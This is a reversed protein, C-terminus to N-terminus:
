RGRSTSLRGAQARAHDENAEVVAEIVIQRIGERDGVVDGNFNVNYTVQGSGASPISAGGSVKSSAGPATTQMFAQIPRFGSPLNRSLGRMARETEETTFGLQELITNFAGAESEIEEILDRVPALDQEIISGTDLFEQVLDMVMGEFVDMREVQSEGTLWGRILAARITEEMNDGIATVDAAALGSEVARQITQSDIGLFRPIGTEMQALERKIREIESTTDSSAREANRLEQELRDVMAIAEKLPRSGWNPFLRKERATVQQQWYTLSSGLEDIVSDLRHAQQEAAVLESEAKAIAEQTELIGSESPDVAKFESAFADFERPPGVDVPQSAFLQGLAMGAIQMLGPLAAQGITQLLGAGSSRNILGQGIDMIFRDLVSSGSNLGQVFGSLAENAAQQKRLRKEEDAVLADLDKQYDRMTKTVGDLVSEPNEFAEALRDFESDLSAIGSEIMHVFGLFQNAREPSVFGQQAAGVILAQLQQILQGLVGSGGGAGIHPPPVLGSQFGQMGLFELVEFPGGRLVDWPVVAEQKHVLGAVENTPGSGTWPTGGAFGPLGPLSEIGLALQARAIQALRQRATQSQGNVSTIVTDLDNLNLFGQLGTVWALSFAEVADVGLREMQAEIEPKKRQMRELLIDAFDIGGQILSQLDGGVIQTGPRDILGQGLGEAILDQLAPDRLQFPGGTALEAKMSSEQQALIELLASELTANMTRAFQQIQDRIAATQLTVSGPRSSTVDPIGSAGPGTVGPSSSSRGSWLDQLQGLLSSEPLEWKIKGVNVILEPLSVAIYNETFEQLWAPANEEMWSLLPNWLSRKLETTAFDWDILAVAMTIVTAIAIPWATAGAVAGVTIAAAGALSAKIMNPLSTDFLKGFFQNVKQQTEAPLMDWAIDLVFVVGLIFTALSAGTALARGIAGALGAMAALRGGIFEAVDPIESATWSLVLAAAIGLRIVKGFDSEWNERMFQIPDSDWIVDAIEPLLTLAIVVDPLDFRGSQDLDWNKDIWDSVIDAIAAVPAFIVKWTASLAIGVDQWDFQGSQDLDWHQQIFTDTADFLATFAAFAASWSVALGIKVDQWDFVGSQDLDWREDIWSRAADYVSALGGFVWDWAIWLAISVDDTGFRGDGSMDWNEDVWTRATSYVGAFSGAIFSWGIQLTLSTRELFSLNEDSWVDRLDDLATQARAGIDTDDWWAALEDFHSLILAVAGGILAAKMLFPAAFSTIAALGTLRFMIITARLAGALAGLVGVAGLAAGTIAVWRAINRQQVDDLENWLDIGRNVWDNVVFAPALFNALFRDGARALREGTTGVSNGFAEFGLILDRDLVLGLEEAESMFAEIGARGDRFMPILQRGADSMLIMSTASQDAVSDMQSIRDAVEVFLDEIDEMGEAVERQTFGLREFGKLFEANGRAADATRRVFGRFGTQLTAFEVNTEGAAYRLAQMSEVSIGTQESASRIEKAYQAARNLGVALVANLGALAITARRGWKQMDELPQTASRLAREFRRSESEAKNIDRVWQNTDAILRVTLGAITAM